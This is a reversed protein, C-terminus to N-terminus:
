EGREGPRYTEYISIPLPCARLWYDAIPKISPWELRDGVPAIAISSLGFLHYDRALTMLASEVFRVRTAGVGTERVIMFILTPHAERWLWVTGPKARGSACFKRYSAFAAPYLDFLRVTLPDLESRAKANHGFALAALPTLLPDGQVYTIPM